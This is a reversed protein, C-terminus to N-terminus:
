FYVEIRYYGIPQLKIYNPNTNEDNFINLLAIM